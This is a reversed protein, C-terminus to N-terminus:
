DESPEVKGFDGNSSIGPGNFQISSKNRYLIAKEIKKKDPKFGITTYDTVTPPTQGSALVDSDMNLEINPPRQMVSLTSEGVILGSLIYYVVDNVITGTLNVILVITLLILAFLAIFRKSSLPNNSTLLDIFFQKM